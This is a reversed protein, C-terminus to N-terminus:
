KWTVKSDYLQTPDGLIKCLEELSASGAANGEQVGEGLSQHAPLYESITKQSLVSLLDSWYNFPALRFQWSQRSNITAKFLQQGQWGLAVQYAQLHISWPFPLESLQSLCLRHNPQSTYFPIAAPFSKLISLLNGSAKSGGNLDKTQRSLFLGEM